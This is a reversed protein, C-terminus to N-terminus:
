ISYRASNINIEEFVHSIANRNLFCSGLQMKEKSMKTV